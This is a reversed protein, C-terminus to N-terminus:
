ELLDPWLPIWDRAHVLGIDLYVTLMSRSPYGSSSLEQPLPIFIQMKNRPFSIDPENSLAFIVTGGTFASARRMEVTPISRAWLDLQLGNNMCFLALSDLEDQSFIISTDILVNTLTEKRTNWISPLAIQIDTGTEVVRANLSPHVTGPLASRHFVVSDTKKNPSEQRWGASSHITKNNWISYVVPNAGKLYTPFPSTLIAQLIFSEKNEERRLAPQALSLFALSTNADPMPMSKWLKSAAIDLCYINGESSSFLTWGNDIGNEVLDPSEAKKERFDVVIRFLNGEENIVFLEGLSSWFVDRPSPLEVSFFDRRTTLNVFFIKGNGRDAVALWSGYPSLAVPEFLLTEEPPFWTTPARLSENSFTAFSYFDVGRTVPDAVAFESSSIPAADAVTNEVRGKLEPTLLTAEDFAKFSYIDGNTSVIYFIGDGMGMTAAPSEAPIKVARSPKLFYVNNGLTDAICITSGCTDAKGLGKVSFPRLAGLQLETQLDPQSIRWKTSLPSPSLIRRLERQQAIIHSLIRPATSDMPRVELYYSLSERGASYDGTRNMALGHLLYYDVFYTNARLARGLYDAVGWYDRTLFRMYAENFHREAEDLQARPFDAAWAAPILFFCSFVTFLTLIATKAKM